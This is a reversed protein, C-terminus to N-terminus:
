PPMRKTFLPVTVTSVVISAAIADTRKSIIFRVSPKCANRASCPSARSAGLQKSSHFGYATNNYSPNGKRM